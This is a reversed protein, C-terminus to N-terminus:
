LEEREDFHILFGGLASPHIFGILARRSGPRGREDIMRCGADRGRRLAEAIDPVKFAVHHLGAGRRDVFRALTGMDQRTDGQEGHRVQPADAGFELPEIIELETDGITIFLVRGGGVRRPPRNHYVIGYKDSTFSEVSISVEVDSQRSEVAFGLRTAFCDEIAAQDNTAIGIHDFREIWGAAPPLALPPHLRTRVGGTAALPLEFAEGVHNLAARPAPDTESAVGAVLAAEHAAAPDPTALAIHHIGTDEASDVFPDDPEFLALASKGVTFVPVPGQPGELDARPLELVGGLVEAAREPARTVAAVYAICEFNM